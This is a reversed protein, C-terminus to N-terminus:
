FEKQEKHTESLIKVCYTKKKVGDKYCGDKFPCNKCKEIDFFYRIEANKNKESKRSNKEKRVALHGAPM